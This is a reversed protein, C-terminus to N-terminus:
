LPVSVNDGFLVSLVESVDTSKDEKRYKSFPSLIIAAHMQSNENNCGCFFKNTLTNLNQFTYHRKGRRSV